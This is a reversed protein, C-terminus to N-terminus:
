GDAAGELRPAFSAPGFRGLAFDVLGRTRARYLPDRRASDALTCRVGVKVFRATLNARAYMRQWWRGHKQVLLYYNRWAYYRLHGPDLRRVSRSVGHSIRAAPVYLTPIGAERATLCWDVDELYLFYREDMPGIRRAVAASCFLACGTAWAIPQVKGDCGPEAAHGLHRSKLRWDLSGGAYWLAGSADARAISPSYIGPGHRLAAQVLLALAPPEVIADNNLLWLYTAGTALARERGLNFGAAYGLNRPTAIIQAEPHAGRIVDPSGDDSANDVVYVQSPPCSSAALSDLCAVTDAAGNWNVIIVAVGADHPTPDV